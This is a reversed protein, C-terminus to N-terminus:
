ADSRQAAPTPAISVQVQPHQELGWAARVAARTEQRRLAHVGVQGVLGLSTTRLLLHALARGAQLWDHPSDSPTVLTVMPRPAASSRVRQLGMLDRRSALDSSWLAEVAFAELTLNLLRLDSPRIAVPGPPGVPPLECAARLAFDVSNSPGPGISVVTAVTGPFGAPLLEVAVRQGRAQLAVVVYEAAAGCGLLRPQLQDVPLEAGEAVVSWHDDRRVLTWGRDQSVQPVSLAANLVDGIEDSTISRPGNTRTSM